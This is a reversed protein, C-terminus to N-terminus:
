WSVQPVRKTCQLRAKKSRMQKTREFSCGSRLKRSDVKRGVYGNTVLYYILPSLPQMGKEPLSYPNPKTQDKEWAEVEKLFEKATVKPVSDRIDKFADIQCNREDIAIILKRM